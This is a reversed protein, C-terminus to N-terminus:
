WKEKKLTVVTIERSAGIRFPIFGGFGVSVHISRHDQTFLGAWQKYIWSSPSWGFLMFQMAHTHGSLTLNSRSDPLITREWSTPDHQLMLVFQSSDVGKLTKAIDGKSKFHRGDGDNEMGAVVISDGGRRIIVHENCLLRWGMSKEAKVTAHEYRRKDYPSLHGMYDAYDHNGLVSVVGDRAKIGSLTEIHPMIEEYCLNQIDGTFAVIDAHQANISDVSESLLKSRWGTFTGLHADSFHVIRYGDFGAPLSPSSYTVHKVEIRNFGHTSGYILMGWMIVVLIAGVWRPASLLLPIAYLVKGISIFSLIFLYTNFISPDRPAFGPQLMVWLTMIIILASSGLCVWRAVKKSATKRIIIWDSLIEALIIYILIRAIM